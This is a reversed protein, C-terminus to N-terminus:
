VAPEAGWSVEVWELASEHAKAAAWDYAEEFDNFIKSVLINHNKDKVYGIYKGNPDLPLEIMPGGVGYWAIGENKWGASILNNQENKNSTYNHSGAKANPNYARYLPVSGGSYWGIGEYSWGLRVLNDKEFKNTTYHHDGSNKNYVRYVPTGTKPAFWGIGEASWGLKVLNEREYKNATYFHEGSNKNYVRYMRIGEQAHAKVQGVSLGLGLLAITAGIVLLSKKFM